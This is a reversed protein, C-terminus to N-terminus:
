TAVGQYQLLADYTTLDVPEVTVETPPALRQGSHVRREVAAVCLPQAGDLLARLAEQVATASERAALYLLKLYERDAREPQQAARADYAMRFHSRPFLEERYQYQAFAGPKRM